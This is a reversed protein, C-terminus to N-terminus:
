EERREEERREEKYSTQKNSGRTIDMLLLDRASRSKHTTANNRVTAQEMRRSNYRTSYVM